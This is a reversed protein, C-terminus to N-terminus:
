LMERAANLVPSFALWGLPAAFGVCIIKLVWRQSMLARLGARQNVTM